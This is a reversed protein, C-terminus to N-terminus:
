DDKKASASKQPEAEVSSHKDGDVTAGAGAGAGASDHARQNAAVASSVEEALKNLQKEYQKSFVEMYYSAGNWVSVLFLSVLFVTNLRFYKYSLLAFL